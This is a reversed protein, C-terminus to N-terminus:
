SIDGCKQLVDEVTKDNIDDETVSGYDRWDPSLELPSSLIRIQSRIFSSKLETITRSSEMAESISVLEYTLVLEKIKL